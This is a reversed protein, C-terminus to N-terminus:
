SWVAFLLVYKHILGQIVLLRTLGLAVLAACAAAAVQPGYKEKADKFLYYLVLGAVLGYVGKTLLTIPAEMVYASM